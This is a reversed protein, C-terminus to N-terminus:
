TFIETREVTKLFTCPIDVTLRWQTAGTGPPWHLDKGDWPKGGPLYTYAGGLEFEDALIPRKLQFVDVGDVLYEQGSRSEFGLMKEIQEPTKGLLFIETTIWGTIQKIFMPNRNPDHPIVKLPRYPHPRNIASLAIETQKKLHDWVM